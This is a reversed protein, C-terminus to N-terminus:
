LSFLMERNRDRAIEELQFQLLECLCYFDTASYVLLSMALSLTQKWNKRM